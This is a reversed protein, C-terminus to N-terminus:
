LSGFACAEDLRNGDQRENRAHLDDAVVLDNQGFFKGNSGLKPLVPGVM